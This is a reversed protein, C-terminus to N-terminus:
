GAFFSFDKIDRRSGRQKFVHVCEDAVNNEAATACDVVRKVGVRYSGGAPNSYDLNLQLVSPVQCAISEGQRLALSQGNLTYNVILSTNRPEVTVTVREGQTGAYRLTDHEIERM